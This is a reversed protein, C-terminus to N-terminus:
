GTAPSEAHAGIREQQEKKLQELEEEATQMQSFLKQKLEPFSKLQDASLSANGEKELHLMLFKITAPRQYPPFNAYAQLLRFMNAPTSSRASKYARSFLPALLRSTGLRMVAFCELIDLSLSSTLSTELYALRTNVASILKHNFVRSITFAQLIVVTEKLSAGGLHEQITPLVEHCLASCPEQLTAFGHLLLHVEATSLHEKLELVRHTVVAFLEANKVSVTAFGKMVSCCTRLSLSPGFAIARLALEDFIDKSTKLNVTSCTYILEGVDAEKLEQRKALALTIISSYAETDRFGLKSLCTLILVLDRGGFHPALEIIRKSYSHVLRKSRLPRLAAAALLRLTDKPSCESAINLCRDILNSLAITNDAYLPVRMYILFLNVLVTPHTNRRTASTEIESRMTTFVAHGAMDMTALCRLAKCLDASNMEKGHTAVYDALTSIFSKELYTSEGAEIAQLFVLFHSPKLTHLHKTVFKSLTQASSAKNEGEACFCANIAIFVVEDSSELQESHEILHQLYHRMPTTPLLGLDLCNRLLNLKAARSLYKDDTEFLPSIKDVFATFVNGQRLPSEKLEDAVSRLLHLLLELVCMNVGSIFRVEKKLPARHSCMKQIDEFRENESNADLVNLQLARKTLRFATKLNITIESLTEHMWCVLEFWDAASQVRSSRQEYNKLLRENPLGIKKDICVRLFTQIQPWTMLDTNLHELFRHVVDRKFPPYSFIHLLLPLPLTFKLGLVRTELHANIRVHETHGSVNLCEIIRAVDMPDVVQRWHICLKECLLQVTQRDGIHNQHLVTLVPFGKCLVSIRMMKLYGVAFKMIDSLMEVVARRTEGSISLTDAAQLLVKALSGASELAHSTSEPGPTKHWWLFTTRFYPVLGDLEDAGYIECLLNLYSALLHHSLGQLDEVHSPWHSLPKLKPTEETESTTAPSGTKPSELDKKALNELEAVLQPLNNLKKSQVEPTSSSYFRLGIGQFNHKSSKLRM